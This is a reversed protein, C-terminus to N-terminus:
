MRLKPVLSTEFPLKSTEMGRLQKYGKLPILFSRQFTLVHQFHCDARLFLWYVLLIFNQLM